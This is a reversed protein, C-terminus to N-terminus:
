FRKRKYAQIATDYFELAKEVSNLAPQILSIERQLLHIEEESFSSSLIKSVVVTQAVDIGGKLTQYSEYCANYNGVYSSYLNRNYSSNYYNILVGNASINISSSLEKISTLLKHLEYDCYMYDYDHQLKNLQSALSDITTTPSQVKLSDAEQASACLVCTIALLILLAKKMIFLNIEVFIVCKPSVNTMEESIFAFAWGAKVSQAPYAWTM